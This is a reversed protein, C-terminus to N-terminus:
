ERGDRDVDALQTDNPEDLYDLETAEWHGECAAEFEQEKKERLDEYRRKEQPDGIAVRLDAESDDDGRCSPSLSGVALMNRVKCALCPLVVSCGCMRCYGIENRRRRAPYNGTLISAIAQPSLGVQDGIAKAPLDQLALDFIADVKADDYLGRSDRRQKERQALRSERKKQWVGNAINAVTSRSVGALIAAQRQSYNARLIQEIRAATRDSIM